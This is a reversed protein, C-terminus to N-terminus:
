QAPPPTQTTAPPTQTTAPPKRTRFVPGAKTAPLLELRGPALEDDITRPPATAAPTPTSPTGTAPTAPAGTAPTAPPPAQAASKDSGSACGPSRQAQMILGGFVAFFLAVSGMRLATRM